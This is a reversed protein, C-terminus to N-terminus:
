QFKTRCDLLSLPVQVFDREHMNPHPLNLTKSCLIQKGFKLIDIDLTRAANRGRRGRKQQQEVQQCLKLLQWASLATKIHLVTNWYDPVSKKGWATNRYFPAVQQLHTQPLRAIRQIAQRLQRPPCNLNSGLGLLCDIM